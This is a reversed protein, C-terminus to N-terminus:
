GGTREAPEAVGALGEEVQVDALIVRLALVAAFRGGGRGFRGGSWV